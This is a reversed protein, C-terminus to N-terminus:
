DTTARVGAAAYVLLEVTKSAEAISGSRFVVTAGGARKCGPMLSAADAFSTYHFTLEVTAPTALSVPKVRGSKYSAVADKVGRRLAIDVDHMSPSKASFRGLSEKLAVKAAWPAYKVVDEELLAKDGAVMAVPVGTEGLCASNLTFESMAAGNVKLERITRSSITHDFTANTVDPRAHYGVFIAFDSGESGAVMALERLSGRVVSVSEPMAEPRLNVMPGHSDAVVTEDVGSGRLEDVVSVVCATMISRAEEYLLRGPRMHENSVIHPLGEMDVSVFAKM